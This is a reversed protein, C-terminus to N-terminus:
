TVPTSMRTRFKTGTWYLDGLALGGTGAAADNAYTPVPFVIRLVRGALYVDGPALEDELAAADDAYTDAVAITGTGWAPFAVCSWSGGNTHCMGLSQDPLSFVEKEGDVLMMPGETYNAIFIPGKVANGDPLSYTSGGTWPSKLTIITAQGDAPSASNVVDSTREVKAAAYIKPLIQLLNQQAEVNLAMLLARGAESADAIDGLEIAGRARLSELWEARTGEYGEAVALQYADRANQINVTIITAM